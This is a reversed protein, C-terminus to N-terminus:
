NADLSQPISGRNSSLKQLKFRWYHFGVKPINKLLMPWPSYQQLYERFEYIKKLSGYGEEALMEGCGRAFIKDAFLKIEPFNSRLYYGTKINIEARLKQNDARFTYTNSTHIRQAALKDTLFLGKSLALSAYKIYNDSITVGKSEPMPLIQNIVERRFCLGCPITHSFRQGRRFISRFDVIRDKSITHSPDAVPLSKGYANIYDLKHFIWGIDPNARFLDVISAVKRPYFYDDADLFLILDGKAMLFGENFASAQGGNKKFIPTINDKSYGNIVEASNDQSGDDVVFVEINKYTQTLASEIAQQIFHGYNYNNILISVLPDSNNELKYTVPNLPLTSM